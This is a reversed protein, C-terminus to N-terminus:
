CRLKGTSCKTTCLPEDHQGDLVQALSHRPRIPRGRASGEEASDCLPSDARKLVIVTSKCNSHFLCLVHLLSLATVIGYLKTHSLTRTNGGLATM